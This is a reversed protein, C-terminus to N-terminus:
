SVLDDMKVGIGEYRHEDLYIDTDFFLLNKGKADFAMGYNNETLCFRLQALIYKIENHIDERDGSSM